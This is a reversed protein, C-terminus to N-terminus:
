SPQGVLLKFGYAMEEAGWPRGQRKPLHSRPVLWCALLARGRRAV